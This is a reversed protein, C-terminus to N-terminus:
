IIVYDHSISKTLMDALNSPFVCPFCFVHPRSKGFLIVFEICPTQLALLSCKPDWFYTEM